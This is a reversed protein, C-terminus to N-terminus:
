TVVLQADLMRRAVRPLPRCGQKFGKWSLELMQLVYWASIAQKVRRTLVTTANKPGGGRRRVAKADIGEDAAL